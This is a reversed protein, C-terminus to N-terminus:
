DIMWFFGGVAAFVLGFVILAVGICGGGVYTGGRVQEHQAKAPDAPNVFVTMPEGPTAVTGPVLDETITHQEGSYEYRYTVVTVTRTRSDAGRGTTRREQHVDLVEASVSAWRRQRRAAVFPRIILWIGWCAVGLGAAMLGGALIRMWIM